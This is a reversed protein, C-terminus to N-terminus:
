PLGYTRMFNVRSEATKYTALYLVNVHEGAEPNLDVSLM